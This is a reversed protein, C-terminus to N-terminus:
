TQESSNSSSGINTQHVNQLAIPIIIGGGIIIGIVSAALPLWYAPKRRKPSEIKDKIDEWVQSFGRIDINEASEKLKKEVEKDEM